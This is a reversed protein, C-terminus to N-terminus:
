NSGEDEVASRTMEALCEAAVHSGALNKIGAYGRALSNRHIDLANIGAGILFGEFSRLALPLIKRAQDPTASRYSDIMAILSEIVARRASIEESTM